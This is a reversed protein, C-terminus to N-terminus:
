GEAVLALTASTHNAGRSLAEVVLVQERVELDVTTLRWLGDAGATATGLVPGSAGRETVTIRAGPDARGVIRVDPWAPSLVFGDGPSTITVGPGYDAAVDLQATAGGPVRQVARLAYTGAVDPARLAVSWRGGAITATGLRTGDHLIEVTAGDVGTGRVEALETVDSDFVVEATFEKEDRPVEVEVSTTGLSTSGRFAEVEMTSVGVALGDVDASFAGGREPRVTRTTAVGDREWRVDVSTATEPAEGVVSATRARPDVAEVRAALARVPIDLATTATTDFTGAPITGQLRGTLAWSTVPADVATVLRVPFRIQRGAPVGWDHEDLQYSYRRPDSGQRGGVLTDAGFDKWAGGDLYQGRVKEQGADFTTGEPAELQLSGKPVGFASRATYTVFATSTAGRELSGTGDVAVIRDPLTSEDITVRVAVTDKLTGSVFQQYPIVNTGVHLGSVTDRWTGDQGVTAVPDLGRNIVAGPTATGTVVAKKALDDKSAVRATLPRPAYPRTLPGLDVWATNYWWYGFINIGISTIRGDTRTEGEAWGAPWPITYGNTTSVDHWTGGISPIVIRSSCRSFGSCHPTGRVIIGSATATASVGTIPYVFGRTAAEGEGLPVGRSSTVPTGDEQEAATSVPAPVVAAVVALLLTLVLTSLASPTKM